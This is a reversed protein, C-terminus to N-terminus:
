RGYKASFTATGLLYDNLVFRVMAATADAGVPLHEIKLAYITFVYRHPEGPGPCPGHYAATGLDSRGQIAGSPLLKSDVVGAGRPIHNLSAPLNYVVWHWWGSGTIKEDPDFVTVAFSRTASPTGQWHLEPSLNGGTCGAQNFVFASPIPAASSIDASSLTFAQAPTLPTSTFALWAVLLARKKHSTSGM